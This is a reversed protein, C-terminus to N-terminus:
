LMKTQLVQDYDYEIKVENIWRNPTLNRKRSNKNPEIEQKLLNHLNILTVEVIEDEHDCVVVPFSVM